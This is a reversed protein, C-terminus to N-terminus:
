IALPLLKKTYTQHAAITYPVRPRELSFKLIFRDPNSTLFHSNLRLRSTAWAKKTGLIPGWALLSSKLSQHFDLRFVSSLLKKKVVKEQLAVKFINQRSLITADWSCSSLCGKEYPLEGMSSLSTTNYDMSPVTYLQRFIIIYSRNFNKRPFDQSSTTEFALIKFPFYLAWIYINNQLPIAPPPSSNLSFFGTDKPKKQSCCSDSQYWGEFVYNVKVILIVLMWTTNM